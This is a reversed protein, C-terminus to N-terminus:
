DDSLSVSPLAEFFRLRVRGVSVSDMGTELDSECLALCRDVDDSDSIGVGDLESPGLSSSFVILNPVSSMESSAIDDV